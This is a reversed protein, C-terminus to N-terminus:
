KNKEFDRAQDIDRELSRALEAITKNEDDQQSRIVSKAKKPNAIALWQMAARRVDLEENVDQVISKLEDFNDKAQRTLKERAYYRADYNTVDVSNRLLGRISTDAPDVFPKPPNNMRRLVDPRYVSISSGEKEFWEKMQAVLQRRKALPTKVSYGYNRGTLIYITDFAAISDDSTSDSALLVVSPLGEANGMLGLAIAGKTVFSTATQTRMQELIAQAASADGIYGLATIANLSLVQKMLAVQADKQDIPVQEFDREVIRQCASPLQERAIQTLVPVSEEVGTIGLEMIAANIIESKMLPRDPLGKPLSTLNFGNQLFSLLDAPLPNVGHSLLMQRRNDTNSDPVQTVAFLQGVGPVEAKKLTAAGSSADQASIATTAVSLFLVFPLFKRM